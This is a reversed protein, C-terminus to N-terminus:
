CAARVAPGGEVEGGGGAPAPAGDQGQLGLQYHEMIATKEEEPCPQM